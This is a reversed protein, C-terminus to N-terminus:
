QVPPRLFSNFSLYIDNDFLQEGSLVKHFSVEDSRFKMQDACLNQLHGAVALEDPLSEMTLFIM